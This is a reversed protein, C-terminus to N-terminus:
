RSNVSRLEIGDGEGQDGVDLDPLRLSADSASLLVLRRRDRFYQRFVFWDAEAIELVHNLLRKAFDETKQSQGLEASFRFIASLSEYCSSLEETMADLTGELGETLARLAEGNLEAKGAQADGAAAPFVINRSARRMVLTNGHRGKRYDVSDTLNQILFIGRGGRRILTPFGFRPQGILGGPITM